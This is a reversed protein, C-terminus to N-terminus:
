SNSNRLTDDQVHARVSRVVYNIIAEHLASAGLNSCHQKVAPLGGLQEAVVEDTIEWAADVHKGKAMETMVSGCAIAAPCGQCQFKIDAIHEDEVRIWVRLFDGCQPDGIQGVGDANDITGMNRPNLFHELLKDNYMAPYSMGAANVDGFRRPKVAVIGVPPL